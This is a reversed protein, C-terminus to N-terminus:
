IWFISFLILSGRSVWLPEKIIDKHEYIHNVGVM